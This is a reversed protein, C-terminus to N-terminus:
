YPYEDAIEEFKTWLVLRKDENEPLKLDIM